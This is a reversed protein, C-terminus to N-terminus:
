FRIIYSEPKQRYVILSSVYNGRKDEKNCSCTIICRCYVSELFVKLNIKFSLEEKFGSGKINADDRFRQTPMKSYGLHGPQWGGRAPGRGKGLLTPMQIVAPSAM